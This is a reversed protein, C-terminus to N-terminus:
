WDTVLRGCVVFVVDLRGSFFSSFKWRGFRSFSIQTCLFQARHTPAFFLGARYLQLINQFVDNQPFRRYHRHRPYLHLILSFFSIERSVRRSPSSPFSSFICYYSLLSLVFRVKSGKVVQTGFPRCLPIPGCNKESTNLDQFSKRRILQKKNKKKAFVWM